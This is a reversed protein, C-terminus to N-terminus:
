REEPREPRPTDGPPMRTEIWLAVVFLWVAVAQCCQLILMAHHYPTEVVIDDAFSARAIEAHTMAAALFALVAGVKTAPLRVVFHPAVGVAMALYGLGVIVNAVAFTLLLPETTM